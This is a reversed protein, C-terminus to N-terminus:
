RLLTDLLDHSYTMSYSQAGIVQSGTRVRGLPDYSGYSYSSVSSSVSSLRRQWEYHQSRLQLKGGLLIRIM